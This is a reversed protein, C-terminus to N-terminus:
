IVGLDKCIKRMATEIHSDNTDDSYVDFQQNQPVYREWHGNAFGPHNDDYRLSRNAMEWLGWLIVTDKVTGALKKLVTAGGRAEVVAKVSTAMTDYKAGKIKM